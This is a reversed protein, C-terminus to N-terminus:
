AAFHIIVLAKIIATITVVMLINWKMDSEMSCGWRVIEGNTIVGMASAGNVM